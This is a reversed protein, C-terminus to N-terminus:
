KRDGRDGAEWLSGCRSMGGQEEPQSGVGCSAAGGTTRRRRLAAARNQWVALEQTSRRSQCGWCGASLSVSYTPLHTYFLSSVREPWTLGWGM